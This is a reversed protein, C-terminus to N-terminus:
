VQPIALMQGNSDLLITEGPLLSILLLFGWVTFVEKHPSTNVFMTIIPNQGQNFRLFEWRALLRPLIREPLSM